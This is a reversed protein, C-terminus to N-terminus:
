STSCVNRLRNSTVSIDCNRAPEHLQLAAPCCMHWCVKEALAVDVAAAQRSIVDSKSEKAARTAERAAEQEASLM